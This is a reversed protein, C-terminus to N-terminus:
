RDPDTRGVASPLDAQVPGAGSSFLAHVWHLSPRADIFLARVLLTVPIALIAGLGGLIWTWLVLAVFTLTTNLHVRDGVVKPQILTQVVLNIVSYGVVIIVAAQWDQTLLSIVAPPILGILFGINPIFNTVFALLAWLWADPVGLIMLLVWDLVAVIAGFIAAVAFYSRTSHGFETLAEAMAPQFRVAVRLRQSFNAVDLAMFLVLAALFALTSTLSATTALLSQALTAIREPSVLNVMARTDTTAIGFSHLIGSVWQWFVTLQASQRSVTVAFRAVALYICWGLVFLVGYIIVVM